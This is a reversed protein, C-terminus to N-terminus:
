ARDILVIEGQFPWKEEDPILGARVPNNRVYDWKESYSEDSRLIHDFFGPQWLGPERLIARKLGRIWMGLEFEEDGRVFFHVHEPMVVYRGVGVNRNIAHTCYSRFNGHAQENALLPRRHLTCFTVFYLPQHIYILELRPPKGKIM